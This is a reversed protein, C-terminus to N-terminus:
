MGGGAYGLLNKSQRYIDLRNLQKPSNITQNFNNVVTGASASATSLGSDLGSLATNGMARMSNYLSKTNNEIGVGIGAPLWQGIEKAMLRSPSGIQFFKKLWDTVNGVFGSIKSKLWSAKNSIGNWLGAVVDGGISKIKNPLSKVTSVISNLLKTGAQKGKTYMITILQTLRNSVDKIFNGIHKPIATITNIMFNFVDLIVTKITNFLGIVASRFKDNTKWLTILAVTLGVVATIVLGIPNMTLAIGLAELVPVGTSIALFLSKVVGIITTITGIIKASAIASVIGTIVSLITSGNHVIFSALTSIVPILEDRLLHVISSIFEQGSDSTIWDNFSKTVETLAPLLASGLIASTNAINMQLIKQQNAYSGSTKSFDGQADQTVSLLYNYRLMTKESESMAKYPKELGQELAYAELNTASMVVGLKKLPETEGSIVGAFIKAYSEDASLNYFSALDGALGTLTTSMQTAEKELGMSKLASGLAGSMRQAELTTLGFQTSATNSFDYVAKASDGFTTDVVNRVEDLDSALEIGNSVFEKVSDIALRFGDAVLEALAGKLISFGGELRGTTDDLKDLQTELKDAGKGANREEDELEDLVQTYKAIERETQNVVAKQNNLKTQYEQAEASNEGYERKVEELTREYESLVKKQSGLNSELQKLKAKVGTTSKGWDQLASSTAKFESKALATERRATKM